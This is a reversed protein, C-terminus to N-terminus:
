NNTVAPPITLAIYVHLECQWKIFWSHIMKLNVQSKQFLLLFLFRTSFILLDNKRACLSMWATTTQRQRIYIHCCPKIFCICAQYTFEILKFCILKLWYPDTGKNYECMILAHVAACFCSTFVSSILAIFDWGSQGGRNFSSRLITCFLHMTVFDNLFSINNCVFIDIALM